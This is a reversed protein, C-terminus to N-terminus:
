CRYSRFRATAWVHRLRQFDKGEDTPVVGNPSGPCQEEGDRTTRATGIRCGRLEVGLVDDHEFHKWAREFNFPLCHKDIDGPGYHDLLRFNELLMNGDEQARAIAELVHGATIWYWKGDCEMVFGSRFCVQVQKQPDGDIDRRRALFCLGVLYKGFMRMVEIEEADTEQSLMFGKPPTIMRRTELLLLDVAATSKKTKNAHDPVLTLLPSRAEKSLLPEAQDM